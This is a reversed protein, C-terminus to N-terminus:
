LAHQYISSEVYFRNRPVLSWREEEQGGACNNRRAAFDYIFLRESSPCECGTGDCVVASSELLITITLHVGAELNGLFPSLSYRGSRSADENRIILSQKLYRPVSKKMTLLMGTSGVNETISIPHWMKKETLSRQTKPQVMIRYMRYVTKMRSIESLNIYWKKMSQKRIRSSLVSISCPPESNAQTWRRRWASIELRKRTLSLCNM